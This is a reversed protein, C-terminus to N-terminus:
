GFLVLEVVFNMLINILYALSLYLCVRKVSEMDCECLCTCYFFYCVSFQFLLFFLDTSSKVAIIYFSLLFFNLTPRIHIYNKFSNLRRMFTTTQKMQLFVRRQPHFCCRCSFFFIKSQSIM